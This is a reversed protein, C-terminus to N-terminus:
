MNWVFGGQIGSPTFGKAMIPKTTQLQKRFEADKFFKRRQENLIGDLRNRNSDNYDNYELRKVVFISNTNQNGYYTMILSQYLKPFILLINTFVILFSNPVNNYLALAVITFIVNLSYLIITFFSIVIITENYFM